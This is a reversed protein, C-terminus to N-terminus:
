IIEFEKLQIYLERVLGYILYVVPVSFLMGTLGFAWGGAM